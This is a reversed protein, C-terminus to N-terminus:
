KRWDKERLVDCTCRAPGEQRFWLCWNELANAFNRFDVILKTMDTQRDTRGDAHFLKSGMLRILFNSVSYKEFVQRSFKLKMLSQCSCRHKVHLGIYMKKDCRMWNKRYRSINWVFTYLFDFCANQTRYSKTIKFNTSNILYHPFIYYLRVPWIVIHRMRMAHQIGFDVFV